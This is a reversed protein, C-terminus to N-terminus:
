GKPFKSGSFRGDECVTGSLRRRKKLIANRAATLIAARYGREYETVENAIQTANFAVEGSAREHITIKLTIM